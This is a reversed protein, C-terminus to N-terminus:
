ILQIPLNQLFENIPMCKINNIKLTKDGKYLLIPTAEPYDSCFSQLGNLDKSYVNKSNKVEVAWFNKEGYIIFDVEVGARTRWYYFNYPEGLYDNWARLHQLVLGELAAGTIDNTNKDLFGVPRLSAFVGADFYYFKSHAVTSRKARKTFVPLLYGLLLDLLIDLYGEVLKRSLACERAVNSINLVTAHSFSIIELFRSFNGINRVLSEAQVEEKLYLGVYSRLTDTPNDSCYILPVLGIRLSKELDFDRKLESAIFPHLHRVVARGALLNVGARRLKRASSGTLIFRWGKKQEILDHVVSLLEPVKQVEDIIIDKKNSGLITETLREPYASYTRVNEPNLLDIWLANLFQEKLWTTKGTGRPGFLFFSGSPTNFYRKILHM